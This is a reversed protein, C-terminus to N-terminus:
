LKKASSDFNPKQNASQASAVFELNQLSKRSVEQNGLIRLQVVVRYSVRANLNQYYYDLKLESTTFHFQALVHFLRCNNQVHDDKLIKNKTKVEQFVRFM